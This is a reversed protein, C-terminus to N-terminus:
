EFIKNINKFSVNENEINFVLTEIKLEKLKTIIKNSVPEPLVIIKITEEKLNHFYLQGIATYINTSTTKSKVEFLHTILGNKTLFLDRNKDNHVSYSKSELIKSLSNVILGHNCEAQIIEDQLYTKIGTFEESFENINDTKIDNELEISNKKIREIELVFTNLQNIFNSSYLEGIIAFTSLKNGDNIEIFKGRYNEMFLNKGIGKRGGGIKGRHLVYINEKEDKAFAGAIRRNIGEYPFNIECVISLNKNKQPKGIGFANWFRNDQENYSYWFNNNESYHLEMEYSGNQTGLSTDTKVDLKKSIIEYFDNQIKEIENLNEIIQIM